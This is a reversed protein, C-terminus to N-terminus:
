RVLLYTMTVQEPMIDFTLASLQRPNCEGLDIKVHGTWSRVRAVVEGDEDRVTYVHGIIRRRLLWIMRRLRHLVRM